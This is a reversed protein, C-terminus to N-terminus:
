SREAVLASEREPFLVARINEARSLEDVLDLGHARLDERLEASGHDGLARAIAVLLAHRSVGNIERPIRFAPERHNRNVAAAFAPGQHRHWAVTVPRCHDILRAVEERHRQVLTALPTESKRVLDNLTPKRPASNQIVSGSTNGPPPSKRLEIEHGGAKLADLVIDIHNALGLSRNASKFDAGYILGIIKNDSNIVVSGSDGENNFAVQQFHNDLYTETNAPCIIIQNHRVKTTGGGPLSIPTDSAAGGIDVVFGETYGSRAGIKRVTEGVVATAKGDVRLTKLTARNSIILVPTEETLRGLACDVDFNKLGFIREGIVHYECCCTKKYEPQTLKDTDTLVQPKMGDFLGPWLVHACTLVVNEGGPVTTAFWGLTGFDNEKQTVSKTSIAVGATLPRHESEDKREVFGENPTVSYVKLVDTPFGQVQAPVREASSVEGVGKKEWVYARFCIQDTLAGGIEKLGIGVGVVGPIQMLVTKAAAHVALLANQRQRLQEKTAM